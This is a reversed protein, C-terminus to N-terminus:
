YFFLDLSHTSIFLLIHFGYGCSNKLTTLLDHLAACLSYGSGLNRPKVRYILILAYKLIDKIIWILIEYKFATDNMISTSNGLRLEGPGVGLVIKELKM